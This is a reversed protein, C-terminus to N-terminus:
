HPAPLGQRSMPASDMWEHLYADGEAAIRRAYLPTKRLRERLAPIVLEREEATLPTPTRSWPLVLLVPELAPAEIMSPNIAPFSLSSM